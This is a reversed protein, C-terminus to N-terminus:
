TGYISRTWYGIPPQNDDDIFARQEYLQNQVAEYVVYFGHLFDDSVSDQWQTPMDDYLIDIAAFLASQMDDPMDQIDQGITQERHLVYQQRKMDDDLRGYETVTDYDNRMRLDLRISESKIPSVLSHTALLSGMAFVEYRASSAQYVDAESIINAPVQQYIDALTDMYSAAYKVLGSAPYLNTLVGFIYDRRQHPTGVSDEIIETIFQSARSPGIYDEREPWPVQRDTSDSIPFESM